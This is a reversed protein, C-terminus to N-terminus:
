RFTASTEPPECGASVLRALIPAKVFLAWVLAGRALEHTIFVSFEMWGYHGSFDTSGSAAAYTLWPVIRVITWWGLVIAALRLVVTAAARPSTAGIPGDVDETVRSSIWAARFFLPWATALDVLLPITAAAIERSTFLMERGFLARVALTAWYFEYEAAWFVIGFAFLRLMVIVISLWTM